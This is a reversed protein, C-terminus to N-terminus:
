YLVTSFLIFKSTKRNERLCFFGEQQHFNREAPKPHKGTLFILMRTPLQGTRTLFIPERSFLAAIDEAPRWFDRCSPHVKLLVPTFGVNQLLNRLIDTRGTFLNTDENPCKCFSFSPQLHRRNKITM